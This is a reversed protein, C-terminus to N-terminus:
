ETREYEVTDCDLALGTIEDDASVHVRVASALKGGTCEVVDDWEGCNTRSAIKERVDVSLGSSTPNADDCVGWVYTATAVDYVNCEYESPRPLVGNILAMYMAMGKIRDNGENASDCTKVGNAYLHEPESRVLINALTQLSTNTYNGNNCVNVEQIVTNNEGSTQLADGLSRFTVKIYCPKDLGGSAGGEAWQIMEVGYEGGAVGMVRVDAAATGSVPTTTPSGSFHATTDCGAALLLGTASLLAM